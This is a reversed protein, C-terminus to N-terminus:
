DQAGDSTDFCIQNRGAAKARYMAADALKLCLEASNSPDSLIAVGLSAGAQCALPALEDGLKFPTQISHLVKDAVAQAHLRAFGTNVGADELLITFEDGGLRAVTDVGRVCAKLRQAVQQLLQDGVGHGQLDNLAKFKDLDLFMLISCQGSRAMGALAQQLRDMFLRRNALGTLADHFAMQRILEQSQRRATVDRGIGRFGVFDGSGNVMPEGSIAHWVLQGDTARIPFEFDHFVQRAALLSQYQATQAATMEIHTLQQRTKGLVDQNVGPNTRYRGLDLRTFRLNTDLEWYWDSSLETMARFRSESAQLDCRTQYEETIDEVTGEFYLVEGQSDCVQHAHERIWIRERTKHRFIESVFDVVRGQARLLRLFESRRGPDCYWETAIDNVAALMEAESRYGNLRVLAPNARLQKGSPSSRYSGIPLLDFLSSFNDSFM